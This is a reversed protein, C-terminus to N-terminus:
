HICKNDTYLLCDRRIAGCYRSTENLSVRSTDADIGPFMAGDFKHTGFKLPQAPSKTLLLYLKEHHPKNALIMARPHLAHLHYGNDM